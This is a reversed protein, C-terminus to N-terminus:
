LELVQIVTRQSGNPRRVTDMFSDLINFGANRMMGASAKNQEHHEIFVSKKGQLKAEAVCQTLLASGIGKGVFDHHVVVDGIFFIDNLDAYNSYYEPIFEISISMALGIIAEDLVAVIVDAKNHKFLELVFDISDPALQNWENQGHVAILSRLLSLENTQAKRYVVM